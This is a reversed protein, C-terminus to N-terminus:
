VLRDHLRPVYAAVGRHDDLPRGLSAHQAAAQRVASRKRSLLIDRFAQIKAPTIFMLLVGTFYSRHLPLFHNRGHGPSITNRQMATSRPRTCTSSFTPFFASRAIAREEDHKVRFISRYLQTKEPEKLETAQQKAKETLTEGSRPPLTRRKKSSAPKARADGNEEPM